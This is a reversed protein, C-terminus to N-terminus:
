GFQVVMNCEQCLYTDKGFVRRSDAARFTMFNDNNKDCKCWLFQPIIQTEYKGKGNCEICEIEFDQNPKDVNIVNVVKKGTGNCINCKLDKNKVHEKSLEYAKRYCLYAAM